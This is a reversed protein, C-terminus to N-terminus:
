QGFNPRGPPAFPVPGPAPQGQVPQGPQQFTAYGPAAPAAPQTYGGPQVFGGPAIAGPAPAYGGQQPAQGYAQYPQGQPAGGGMGPPLQVEYRRAQDALPKPAFLEDFDYPQALEAIYERLRKGGLFRPDVTQEFEEITQPPRAM